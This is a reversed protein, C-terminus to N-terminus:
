AGRYLVIECANRLGYVGGDRAALFDGDIALMEEVAELRVGVIREGAGLGGIVGSARHITSQSVLPPVSGCSTSLM